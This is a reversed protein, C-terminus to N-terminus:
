QVRALDRADVLVRPDDTALAADALIVLSRALALQEGYIIRSSCKACLCIGREECKEDAVAQPTIERWGFIRGIWTRAWWNRREAESRCYEEVIERRSAEISEVRRQAIARSHKIGTAPQTM